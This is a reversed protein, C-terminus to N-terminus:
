PTLTFGAQFAQSMTELREEREGKKGYAVARVYVNRGDIPFVWVTSTTRKKRESQTLAAVGALTTESTPAVTKQKTWFRGLSSMVHALEATRYPDPVEIIQLQGWPGSLWVRKQVQGIGTFDQLGACDLSITFKGQTDTYTCDEASAPVAALLVSAAILTTLFRSM